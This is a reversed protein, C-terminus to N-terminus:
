PLQVDFAIGNPDEVLTFVLNQNQQLGNDKAFLNWGASFRPIKHNYVIGVSWSGNTTRMLVKEGAIWQRGHPIITKPIHQLVM